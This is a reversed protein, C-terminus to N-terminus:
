ELLCEEGKMMYTSTLKVSLKPPDSLTNWLVLHERHLFLIIVQRSCFIGESEEIQPPRSASVVMGLTDEPLLCM